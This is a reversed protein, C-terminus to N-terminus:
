LNWQVYPLPCGRQLPCFMLDWHTRKLPEVTCLSSSLREITAPGLKQPEETRVFTTTDEGTGFSEYKMTNQETSTTRHVAQWGVSFIIAEPASSASLVIFSHLDSEQDIIMEFLTYYYLMCM